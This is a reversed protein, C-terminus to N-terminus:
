APREESSSSSSIAPTPSPLIATEALMAFQKAQKEKEAERELTKEGAEIVMTRAIQRAKPLDIPPLGSLILRELSVECRQNSRLITQSYMGM